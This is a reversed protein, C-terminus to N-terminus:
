GVIIVTVEVGTKIHKEIKFGTERRILRAFQGVANGEVGVVEAASELYAMFQDPVLPWVQSFHLVASSRGGSRIRAAADLASGKTSGWTMLLLDPSEDGHYEPAVVDELIGRGKRLRKEVMQTRVSLDETIHGDPAHEDSDTVVLHRSAGPFLRPSVGTDSIM